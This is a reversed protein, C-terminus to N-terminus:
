GDMVPAMQATWKRKVRASKVPVSWEFSSSIHHPILRFVSQLVGADDAIRRCIPDADVVRAPPVVVHWTMFALVRASTPSDDALGQNAGGHHLTSARFSVTDGRLLVIQECSQGVAFVTPGDEVRQRTVALLQTYVRDGDPAPVDTHWEQPPTGPVSSLFGANVLELRARPLRRQVSQHLQRVAQLGRLRELFWPARLSGILLSIEVHSAPADRNGRAIVERLLGSRVAANSHLRPTHLELCLRESVMDYLERADAAVARSYRDALHVAVGLKELPSEGKRALAASRAASVGVESPHDAIYSATPRSSPAASM